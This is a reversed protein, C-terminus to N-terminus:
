RCPRAGQGPGCRPGTPRAAPGGALSTRAPGEAPPYPDAASNRMEGKEDGGDAVWGPPAIAPLGARTARSKQSRYSPRGGHPTVWLHSGPPIDRHASRDGSPAVAAHRPRHAPKVQGRRAAAAGGSTEPDSAVTRGSARAQVLVTEIPQQVVGPRALVREARGAQGPDYSNLNKTGLMSGIMVADAVLLLWGILATKRHRASWGAIREVVPARSRRPPGTATDEAHLLVSPRDM